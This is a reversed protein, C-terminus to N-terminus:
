GGSENEGTLVLGGDGRYGASAWGIARSGHVEGGGGDRGEGPDVEELIEFGCEEEFAELVEAAAAPARNALAVVGDVDDFTHLRLLDDVNFGGFGDETGVIGGRELGALIAEGDRRGLFEEGEGVDDCADADAGDDVHCGVQGERVRVDHRSRGGDQGDFGAVVGEEAM